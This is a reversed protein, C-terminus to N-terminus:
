LEMCFKEFNEVTFANEVSFYGSKIRRLSKLYAGNNLLLGLDNALSRIYTGKSCTIQLKIIPLEIKEIIIESIVVERQAMELSKGSRAFEYARKGAIRIASYIPPSQLKKGKLLELAEEINSNSINNIEFTQNIATEMDFSPTTAGIYIEAEYVKEGGQIEEILKTSKGTAIILLGTALPDLTGAHGVKLTKIKLKKIILFKVKSVVNFSTWTYPKDFLIIEGNIFDPEQTGDFYKLM